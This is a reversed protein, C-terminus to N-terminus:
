KGILFVVCKFLTVSLGYFDFNTGMTDTLNSTLNNNITDNLEVVLNNFHSPSSSEFLNMKLIEDLLFLPPIRMLVDIFGLFKARLSM